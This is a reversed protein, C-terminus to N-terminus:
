LQMFENNGFVRDFWKFISDEKIGQNWWTYSSRSFKLGSLACVSMCRAFDEIKYLTVSLDGLKKSDDLIVKFDGGLIWTAHIQEAINELDECLEISEIFYQM